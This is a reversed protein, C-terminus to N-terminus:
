SPVSSFRTVLQSAAGGQFSPRAASIRLRALRPSSPHYAGPPGCCQPPEIFSPVPFLPVSAPTLVDSTIPNVNTAVKPPSRNPYSVATIDPATVEISAYKMSGSPNDSVARLLRDPQVIELASRPQMMPAITAPHTEVTRPRRPPRNTAPSINRSPDIPEAQGSNPKPGIPWMPGSARRGNM